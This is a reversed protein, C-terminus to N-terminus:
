PAPREGRLPNETEVRALDGKTRPLRVTIGLLFVVVILFYVLANARTVLLWGWEFLLRTPSALDILPYSVQGDEDTRRDSATVGGPHNGLPARRSFPPM